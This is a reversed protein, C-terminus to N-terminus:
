DESRPSVAVITGETAANHDQEAKSMPIIIGGASVTEMENPKIVVKFETPYIGSPITTLTLTLSPDPHQEYIQATAQKAKKSRKAKPKVAAPSASSGNSLSQEQM